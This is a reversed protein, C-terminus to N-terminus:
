CLYLMKAVFFMHVLFFWLLGSTFHLVETYAEIAAGLREKKFYLNGQDKLLEAQKEPTAVERAMGTSQGVGGGEAELGIDAARHSTHLKLRSFRGRCFHGIRERLPNM